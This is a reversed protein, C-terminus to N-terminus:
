EQIPKKYSKMTNANANEYFARNSALATNAITQQLDAAQLYVNDIPTNLYGPGTYNPYRASDAPFTTNFFAPIM